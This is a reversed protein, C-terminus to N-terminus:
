LGDKRGVRGTGTTEGTKGGSHGDDGVGAIERDDGVDVVPFGRKGITQEFGGEGHGFPLHLRLEEIGHVKLALAADGDLAHWGTVM